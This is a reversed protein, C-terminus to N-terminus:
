DSEFFAEENAGLGEAVWRKGVGNKSPYVAVALGQFNGPSYRAIVPQTRAPVQVWETSTIQKGFYEEEVLMEVEWLPLGETSIDQVETRTRRGEVEEWKYLPNCKGTLIPEFRAPDVPILM